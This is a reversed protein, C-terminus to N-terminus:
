EELIIVTRVEVTVPLKEQKKRFKIYVSDNLTYEFQEQTRKTIIILIV